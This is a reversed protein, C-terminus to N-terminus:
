KVDNMMWYASDAPGEAAVAECPQLMTAYECNSIQASSGLKTLVPM